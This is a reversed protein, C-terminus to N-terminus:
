ALRQDISTLLGRYSNGLSDFGDSIEDDLENMMNDFSEFIGSVDFTTNVVNKVENYKDNLPEQILKVPLQEIKDIIGFYMSDIKKISKEPYIQGIQEVMYSYFSQMSLNINEIFYSELIVRNFRLLASEAKSSEYQVKAQMLEKLLANYKNTVIVNNKITEKEEDTIPLGSNKKDALIKETESKAKEVNSTIIKKTLNFIKLSSVKKNLLNRNIFQKFLTVSQENEEKLINIEDETLNSKLIEAFPDKEPYIIKNILSILGEPIDSEEKSTFDGSSFSNLIWYPNLNNIKGNIRDSLETLFSSLQSKFTSLQNTIESLNAKIGEEINTLVTGAKEDILAPVDSLLNLIKDLSILTDSLPKFSEKLGTITGKVPNIFQGEIIDSFKYKLNKSCDKLLEFKDQTVQNFNILKINFDNESLENLDNFKQKLNLIYEPNINNLLTVVEPLDKYKVILKEWTDSLQDINGFKETIQKANEKLFKAGAQQQKEINAVLNTLNTEIGSFDFNDLSQNFKGGMQDLGSNIEDLFKGSFYYIINGWFDSQAINQLGSGELLKDLSITNKIQDIINSIINGNAVKELEKHAIDIPEIIKGGLKDPSIEDIINDLQNFYGQFVNIVQDPDLKKTISVLSENVEKLPALIDSPKFGSLTNIITKYSELNVILNNVISGPEFKNMENLFYNYKDELKDAVDLIPEQIKQFASILEPKVYDEIKIQKIFQVAIKLAIKQPAGLKSSDISKIKSEVGKTKDVVIDFVPKLSVQNILATFEKIGDRATQLVQKVEDRELIGTIEDLLEYIKEQVQNLKTEYEDTIKKDITDLSADLKLKLDEISSFFSEIKEGVVACGDKISSIISEVNLSDIFENVKKEFDEFISNIDPIYTKLNEFNTIVQDSIKTAAEETKEVLANLYENISDTMESLSTFPASVNGIVEIVKSSINDLYQKIFSEVSTDINIMANLSEQLENANEKIFNDIVINTNKFNGVIPQVDEEIKKTLKKVKKINNEDLIELEILFNKYNNVFNNDVIQQKVKSIGQFPLNLDIKNIQYLYIELLSKKALEILKEPDKLVHIFPQWINLIMMLLKSPIAIGAEALKNLTEKLKQDDFGLAAANINQLSVTVPLVVAAIQSFITNVDFSPAKFDILNVGGAIGNTISSLNISKLNDFVPTLNKLFTKNSLFDPIESFSIDEIINGPISNTISSSIQEVVKTDILNFSMGLDIENLFNSKDSIEQLINM